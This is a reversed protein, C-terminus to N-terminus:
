KEIEMAVRRNTARGERTGNDAIPKTEGFYSTKIREAEVGNAVLFQKVAEVRDKSLKMNYEETGQNDTHGEMKIVLDDRILLLNTLAELDGYSERKIIAKDFEFELTEAVQIIAENVDDDTPEPGNMYVTDVREVIFTDVVHEIITVTDVKPEVNVVDDVVDDIPPQQQKKCFKLGLGIEHSGAGYSAMGQMPVEYAYSLFFFKRVNVGIRGIIGVGTRFGLGGYIFDNYNLDANIDFQSVTNIGKYMLSPTLTFQRNLIVNYSGYGFLHRKLGYGDLGPYALQSRTEIMQQTGFSLELGKFAYLIGAGTNLAGAAQNGETVIPDFGDVMIAGTPDVRVQFYGASLGLRLQHESAITIGYSAAASAALQTMMGARDHLVNGGVGFKGLQTNASLFNTNPAGDVKVWQNLHSFNVETCGSYGAYAPNMGFKNFGYLNSQRTQQAMVSSSLLLLVLFNVTNKM